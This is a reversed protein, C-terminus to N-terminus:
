GLGGVFGRGVPTMAESTRAGTAAVTVVRTVRPGRNVISIVGIRELQRILYRVRQADNLRLDLAIARNTPCPRRDEAARELVALVRGLDSGPEVRWHPADPVSAVGSGAGAEAGAGGAPAVRQALFDFSGDAQRPQFLHVRGARQAAGAALVVDRRRDLVLGHAYRIRAGAPASALWGEFEALSISFCLQPIRYRAAGGAEAELRQAAGAVRNDVRGM